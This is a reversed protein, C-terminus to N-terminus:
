LDFPGVPRPLMPRAIALTGHTRTLRLWHLHFPAFALCYQQGIANQNVRAANVQPPMSIAADLHVTRTSIAANLELLRRPALL